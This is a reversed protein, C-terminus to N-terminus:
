CLFVGKCWRYMDCPAFMFALVFPIVILIFLVLGFIALGTIYTPVEDNTNGHYWIRGRSPQKWINCPFMSSSSLSQFWARVDSKSPWKYYEGRFSPWHLRVSVNQKDDLQYATAQIQGSYVGFRHKIINATTMDVDYCYTEMAKGSEDGTETDVGHIVICLLVFVGIYVLIALILTCRWCNTALCAKVKRRRADSKRCHECTDSSSPIAMTYYNPPEEINLTTVM